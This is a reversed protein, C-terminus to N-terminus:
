VVICSLLSKFVSKRIMGMTQHYIEIKIELPDGKHTPILSVRMGGARSRSRRIEHSLNGITLYVPWQAMDGLHKNLVTKDTALLVPIITANHIGFDILSQQITWWWDAIYM